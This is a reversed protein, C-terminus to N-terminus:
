IVVLLQVQSKLREIILNMMRKNLTSSNNVYRNYEELTFFGIVIGKLSNRLKIDKQISNEIFFLKKEPSFQEFLIKNKSIYNQFVLLLLENQLKLIPRLTENQFFEEASTQPTLTGLSNGRLQLIINDRTNM